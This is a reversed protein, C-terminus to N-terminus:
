VSYITPLTLHTYSVANCTGDETRATHSREDCIINANKDAYTDVDFLNNEFLKERELGIVLVGALVGLTGLKTLAPWTVWVSTSM